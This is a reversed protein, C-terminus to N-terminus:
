WGEAWEGCSWYQPPRSLSASILQWHWEYGCVCRKNMIVAAAGSHSSVTSSAGESSNLTAWNSQILISPQLCHQRVSCVLLLCLQSTMPPTLPLFSAGIKNVIHSRNTPSDSLNQEFTHGWLPADPDWHLKCTRSRLRGTTEKAATMLFNCWTLILHGKALLASLFMFSIQNM